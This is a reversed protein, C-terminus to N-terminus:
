TKGVDTYKMLKYDFQPEIVESPLHQRRKELEHQTFSPLFSAPLSYFMEFLDLANLKLRAKRINFVADKSKPDKAKVKDAIQIYTMFEDIDIYGNKNEDMETFISDIEQDTVEAYGAVVIM